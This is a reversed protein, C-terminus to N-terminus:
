SPNQPQYTGKINEFRPRYRVSHYDEPNVRRASLNKGPIDTAIFRGDLHAAMVGGTGKEVFSMITNAFFIAMHKDYVEPEGSRLFYTLDIPLFRVSPMRKSLEDALFEAVNTKKRHGYADAPGIEPVPVGLNAGESMVVTSYNLPNHRDNAILDALKDINAPVEPIVLRDAWTVIATELATFGADRGFLRFIV